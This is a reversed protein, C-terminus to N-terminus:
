ADRRGPEDRRRRVVSILTAIAAFVLAISPARALLMLVGLAVAVLMASTYVWRPLGYAWQVSYASRPPVEDFTRVFAPDEAAFQRQLERFTKQERDSLM